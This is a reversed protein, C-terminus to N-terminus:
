WSLLPQEAVSFIRCREAEEKGCTKWIARTDAPEGVALRGPGGGARTEGRPTGGACECWGTWRMWRQGWTRSSTLSGINADSGSPCRRMRPAPRASLGAREPTRLSIGAPLPRAHEPEEAQLLRLPSRM